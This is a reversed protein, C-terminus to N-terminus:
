TFRETPGSRPAKAWVDWWRAGFRRATKADLCFLVGSNAVVYLRGNHLLPSAYGIELGDRRWLEHTKTIDGSGRADICVVRGMAVSDYNEDCHAAYVRCGDVVVNANVGRQSLRFGWVREGTRANMAYIGGDANGGILLRRGDVVAVVPTSYTTDEPKGGPMAWWVVEGTRKDMALYRHGGM